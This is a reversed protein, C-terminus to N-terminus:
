FNRKFRKGGAMQVVGVTASKELRPKALSILEEAENDSLFNRLKRIRITSAEYYKKHSRRSLRMM